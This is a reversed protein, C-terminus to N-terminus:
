EADKRPQDDRPLELTSFIERLAREIQPKFAAPLREAIYAPATRYVIETSVDDAMAILATRIEAREAPTM